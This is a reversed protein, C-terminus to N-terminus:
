DFFFLHTLRGNQLNDGFYPGASHVCQADMVILRNYINAVSDTVDFRTSDYFNGAFSEDIGPDASHRAGNLRSKHLRTGSEIPANPTLYVIAAWRQLDCHYVQPDSARTLQFCGNYLHEEFVKIPQGIIQEFASKINPPRYPQTSRLGKYYRLDEQYQVQTLAFNRIEDPNTYFNDVVFLRRQAGTNIYFM